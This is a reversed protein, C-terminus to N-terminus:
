RTGFAGRLVDPEFGAVAQGTTAYKYLVVTLVSKAAQGFVATLAGYLIAIPLLVAMGVPGLAFALFLCIATPINLLFLLWGLGFRAGMAEGWTKGMIKTSRGIASFVNVRELVMVPIVFYTIVAWATGLLSRIIAGGRKDNEIASLLLGVTASVLSWGVISPLHVMAVRFGDMLKSDRETTSIHACGVLAVNFFITVFSCVFYGVFALIVTTPQVEVAEGESSQAIRQLEEPGIGLAIGALVLIIGVASLAPFVALTKDVWIVKLSLKGLKWGNSMRTMFGM